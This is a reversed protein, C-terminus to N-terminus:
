SHQGYRLQHDQRSTSNVDEVLTLVPLTLLAIVYRKLYDIYEAFVEGTERLEWLQTEDPRFESHHDCL